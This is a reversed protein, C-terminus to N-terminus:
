PLVVRSFISSFHHNRGPFCIGGYVKMIIIPYETDISKYNVASCLITNHEQVLKLSLLWSCSCICYMFVYM